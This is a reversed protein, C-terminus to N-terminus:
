MLEFNEQHMHENHTQLMVIYENELHIINLMYLFTCLVMICSRGTNKIWQHTVIEQFIKWQIAKNEKITM